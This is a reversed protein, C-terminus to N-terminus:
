DKLVAAFMLFVLTMPLNGDLGAFGAAVVCAVSLM